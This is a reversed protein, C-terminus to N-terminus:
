RPCSSSGGARAARNCVRPGPQEVRDDAGRPGRALLGALPPHPGYRFRRRGAAPLTSAARDTVCASISPGCVKRMAFRAAKAVLWGVLLIAMALLLRPLFEGLQHLSARVPELLVKMDEM